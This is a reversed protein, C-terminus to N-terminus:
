AAKERLSCPCAEGLFVRIRGAFGSGAVRRATAARRRYSDCYNGRFGRAAHMATDPNAALALNAELGVAHVRSALDHAMAAPAGYLRELGALDLLLTDPATDEVRPTFAHAVDLLAAHASTEQETSRQRLVAVPSAGAFMSAQLKTMGVAMGLQRAKDNLAIVRGLPPKGELAAVARERLWPHPRVMAEVPFDPVYICAFM